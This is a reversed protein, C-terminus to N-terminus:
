RQAQKKVKGVGLTIILFDNIKDICAMYLTLLYLDESKKVFHFLRGARRRMYIYYKKDVRCVTKMKRNKIVHYKSLLHILDNISIMM